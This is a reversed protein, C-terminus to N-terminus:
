ARRGRFLMWMLVGAFVFMALSILVYVWTGGLPEYKLEVYNNGAPLWIGKFGLNAKYLKSKQGNITVQWAPDYSDTYVLFQAESFDTLLTMGNVDFRAVRFRDGPGSIQFMPRRFSVPREVPFARLIDQDSNSVYVIGQKGKISSIISALDELSPEATAVQRYLMFKYHVYDKLDQDELYASLLFVGRGVTGPKGVMGDTDVLLIDHWFDQVFGVFNEALCGTQIPGDARTFAFEPRVHRDPVQCAFPRAHASYTSLVKIPELLLLGFILWIFWVDKGKLGPKSLFVSIVLVGGLLTAWTWWLIAGQFFLFGTFGLCVAVCGGLAWRRGAVPQRLFTGVLARAQEAALLILLPILFIMFYFMNRFLKFYFVHDYFFGYVPTADGLAVLGIVLSVILLLGSQRNIRVFVGCLILVYCLTPIYLIGDTGSTLKDLHSFMREFSVREGLTGSRVADTRTMTTESSMTDRICEENSKYNCHRAPAVIEGRNDAVKQLVLPMAAVAIGAMSLVVVAGSKKTFNWCGRMIRGLERWYIAAATVVVIFLVTVFHFPLYSTMIVMTLFAMWLFDVPRFSEMFRLFFYGFWVAPTFMLIMNLQVFLLAGASSFLLAVFALFAFAEDKLFARALFYFGLCGAWFNLICYVLFADYYNVGGLVLLPFASHVPNFLGLISLSYFPAGLRTFPDWLPVTGNLLNNLLFKDSAYALLTDMSITNRHFLFDRFVILWIFFCAAIHFARSRWFGHTLLAKLQGM